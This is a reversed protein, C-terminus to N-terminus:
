INFTLCSLQSYWSIFVKPRVRGPFRFWWILNIRLGLAYASNSNLVCFKNL